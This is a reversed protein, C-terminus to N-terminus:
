YWELLRGTRVKWDWRMAHATYTLTRGLAILETILILTFYLPLPFEGIWPGIFKIFGLRCM